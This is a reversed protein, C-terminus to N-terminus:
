QDIKDQCRERDSVENGVQETDQLVQETTMMGTFAQQLGSNFSDLVEQFGSVFQWPYAYDAGALFAQQEPFMSSWHETLGQRTPMALGLDTWAQMGQPSTLFNILDWSQPLNKGSSAAAYCVTFSLTAQQKPGEPLEVM